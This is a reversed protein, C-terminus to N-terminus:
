RGANAPARQQNAESSWKGLPCEEHVLRAKVDTFCGCLRCRLGTHHPCTTCERLRAQHTAPTVTKLGTGIFKLMAKAASVAMRLVGPSGRAPEYAAPVGSSVVGIPLLESEGGRFRQLHLAFWGAYPKGTSELLDHAAQARAIAEDRQGLEAHQIGLYWLLEAQHKRDGVAEAIALAQELLAIARAPNRLQSHAHGLHELATKEAYPEGAARAGALAQELLPLARDGQGVALTAMGLHGMLDQEDARNGLERMMALAQELLTIASRSDGDHHHFFGLDGLAIAERRRDGSRRAAALRQEALGGSVNQLPVREAEEPAAPPEIGTVLFLSKGIRRIGKGEPWLSQISTADVAASEDEAWVLILDTRKPGHQEALAGNPLVWAGDGAKKRFPHLLKDFLGRVSQRLPLAVAPTARLGRRSTIKARALTSIREWHQVAGERNGPLWLVMRGDNPSPEPVVGDCLALQQWNPPNMQM